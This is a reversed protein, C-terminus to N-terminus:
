WKFRVRGGGATPLPRVGLDFKAKVKTDGVYFKTSTVTAWQWGLLRLFDGAGWSPAETGVVKHGVDPNFAAAPSVALLMLAMSLFVMM